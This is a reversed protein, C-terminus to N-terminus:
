APFGEAVTELAWDAGAEGLETVSQRGTAVGVVRIGVAHAAAVDRPSDGVAVCERPELSGGSIRVAREVACRTLEARDASDSGYGGCSFYRSLRARGLKIHAAAEVNGTTLGLLIGEGALRDLLEPVGPMVAYGESEAIAEDLHTLYRAMAASIERKDPERRLLARLAVRAVEPDTMGPETVEHTDVSSRHLEEFARAWAVAGAGGSTILTLDIDFLVAEIPAGPADAV